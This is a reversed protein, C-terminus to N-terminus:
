NQKILGASAAILLSTFGWGLISLLSFIIEGYNGWDNSATFSWFDSQHLNIVPIAADIPFLWSSNCPYYPTCSTAALAKEGHKAVVYSATNGTAVIGGHDRVVTTLSVSLVYILLIAVLARWSEYGYGTLKDVCWSWWRSEPRLEGWERLDKQQRKLVKRREHDKGMRRYVEALQLYPQPSYGGDTSQDHNRQNTQRAIWNLRAEATWEDAHDNANQNFSTDKFQSYEFGTIDLTGIAVSSALSSIKPNV